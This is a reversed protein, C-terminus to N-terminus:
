EATPLETASPLPPLPDPAVLTGDQVDLWYGGLNPLLAAEPVGARSAMLRLVGGHATWSARATSSPAEARKEAIDIQM